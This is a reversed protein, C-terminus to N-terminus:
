IIKPRIHSKLTKWMKDCRFSEWIETLNTAEEVVKQTLSNPLACCILGPNGNPRKSITQWLDFSQAM